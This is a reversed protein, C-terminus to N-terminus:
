SIDLPQPNHICIMEKGNEDKYNFVARGKNIDLPNGCLMCPEIEYKTESMEAEKESVGQM